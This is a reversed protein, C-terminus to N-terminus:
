IFRWYYFLGAPAMAPAASAGTTSAIQGSHRM